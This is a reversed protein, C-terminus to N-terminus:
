IERDFESPIQRMFVGAAALASTTSPSRKAITGPPV